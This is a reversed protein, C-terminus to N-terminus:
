WQEVVTKRQVPDLAAIKADEYKSDGKNHTTSIEEFVCGTRTSFSHVQGRRVLQMDGPRMKRNEGDLVVDLEGYLIQFTEEKVTHSHAPHDQGPLLLILKKCYQRNIFSIITAGVRRFSEMGYHHSLEIQYDSGINIRAERLLGKAEHLVSRMVRIGDYPRRQEIPANPEYDKSAVMNELYENTTTQDPQVPMAFFVKERSITEGQKIPQKAWVGRALSKLSAEEDPSVRKEQGYRGCMERARLVEEVWRRVQASNMSYANLKITDTPVGVHRELIQAGMAVAARVVGLNEPAEHGSYGIACDPYREMMRRMVHLQQDRDETPYIGVCHLMALDAPNMRHEFFTVIKDIDALRCGGTSCIVPNGATAIEELLPWDMCSCSAVKLIDVGHNRCREVSKEDFPTVVSLMGQEKTAMVMAQFEEPTLRTSMFRPIHKVDDRDVFDPHVFTDLDRYQLKVAARIEYENAIKAMEGIIRMGHDLDGQHNNAVEFIVLDNFNFAM